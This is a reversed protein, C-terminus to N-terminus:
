INISELYRDIDLQEDGMDDKVINTEPDYEKFGYAQGMDVFYNEQDKYITSIYTNDCIALPIFMENYYTVEIFDEDNYKSLEILEEDKLKVKEKLEKVKFLGGPVYLEIDDLSEGLYRKLVKTSVKTYPIKEIIEYGEISEINIVAVLFNEKYVKVGSIGENLDVKGVSIINKDQEAKQQVDVSENTNVKPIFIILLVVLLIVIISAVSAIVIRKTNNNEKKVRKFVRSTDFMYDPVEVKDYEEKLRDEIDKM